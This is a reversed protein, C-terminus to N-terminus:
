TTNEEAKKEVEVVVKVSPLQQGSKLRVDQPLLVKADMSINDKIQSLDIEETQIPLKRKITSDPALVAFTEPVAAVRKLTFGKQLSGTTRVHVPANYAYLRYASLRIREPKIRMLSLNSPIRVMDSTLPIEQKGEALNSLDVSVKLTAPDLLNFAQVPGMLTVTVEKHLNEEVEWEQSIKRYEIPVVFDRQISEKQYGFSFWLGLALMVAVAKELTNRRAWHPNQRKNGLMEEREYFARIMSSLDSPKRSVVMKGDQVMSITGREESVVICLADCRESLGLAATHRLGYKGFKETDHSLPLHCGFKTVRNDHIIVAGDHGSSHPDFISALIPQTLKGDLDYGGKLHRELPDRGQLIIIAGVRKAAFEAVSEIIVDVDVPWRKEGSNKRTTRLSGLTALREFFRRIDEQFIVVLAILLITFFGQLVLSTLYLHFVRALIYVLGLLSIGAFVFRSATDKFWILIVYILTTIIVIDFFDQVRFGEIMGLLHEM